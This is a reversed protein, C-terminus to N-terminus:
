WYNQIEQEWKANTNKLIYRDFGNDNLKADIWYLNEILVYKVLFKSYKHLEVRYTPVSMIYHRMNGTVYIFEFEKEIRKGNLSKTSAEKFIAPFNERRSVVIKAADEFSLKYRDQAIVLDIICLSIVLVFMTKKTMQKGGIQTDLDPNM